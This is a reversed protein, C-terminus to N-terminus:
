ARCIKADLNLNQAYYKMPQNVICKKTKVLTVLIVEINDKYVYNICM